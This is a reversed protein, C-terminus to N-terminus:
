ETARGDTEHIFFSVIVSMGCVIMVCEFWFFLNYAGYILLWCSTWLSSMCPLCDWLPKQIYRSAKAGFHKDLFNAGAIRFWGLLMGEQLCIYVAANKFVIVLCYLLLETM